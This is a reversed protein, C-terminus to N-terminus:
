CAAAPEVAIREAARQGSARRGDAETAIGPRSAERLSPHSLLGEFGALAEHADGQFVGTWAHADAAAHPTTGDTRACGFLPHITTTDRAATM